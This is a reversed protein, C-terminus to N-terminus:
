VASIKEVIKVLASSDLEGDGAGVLANLHQAVLAAGPLALGLQHAADLVIRLDKQHLRAKFGPKFDNDLMRRGHVELVKSYAFGGLLATRVQAPDVSNRRAFTFAESVAELTLAAVIQNCAKAVQGAGHDGVHVINKGLCEFLPKIRAYVELKGGVMISLEANIAGAEGGSVPADLMEVGRNALARAFARTAEPAITSMDVVVAGTRAGHIVGREGLIVEHVDPTDSVMIFIVDAREAVARASACPRAGQEILVDMTVPRRGHVSLAHGAKLLNSAMPRGMIGLGIFGLQEAM